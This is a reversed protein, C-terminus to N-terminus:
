SVAPTWRPDRGLFALLSDARSYDETVERAPAFVGFSNRLHDVLREAAVWIGEALEEDLPVDQGTAVAIDWAHVAADMAGAAAAIRLPLPGLPTAVEEADAPLPAYADAVDRLVKDLVAQADADLLDAPQFPDSGPRGVGTIAAGYAQQDLRAHNLVQRVTWHSCPAPFGWAEEPVAAVVESLYAHARTLLTIGEVNNM